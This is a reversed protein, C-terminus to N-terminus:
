VVYEQTGACRVSSTHGCVKFISLLNRSSVERLLIAVLLKSASSLAGETLRASDLMAQHFPPPLPFPLPPSPLPSSDTHSFHCLALSSSTHQSYSLKHPPLLGGSSLVMNRDCRSFPQIEERRRQPHSLLRSRLPTIWPPRSSTLSSPRLSALSWSESPACDLCATCLGAWLVM